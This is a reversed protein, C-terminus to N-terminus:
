SRPLWADPEISPNIEYIGFKNKKFKPGINTGRTIWSMLTVRNVGYKKAYETVTIKKSM